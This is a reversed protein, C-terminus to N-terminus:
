TAVPLSGFVSYNAAGSTHLRTKYARSLPRVPQLPLTRAGPWSGLFEGRTSLDPFDGRESRPAAYHTNGTRIQGLPGPNRMIHAAQAAQGAERTTRSNRVPPDIAM